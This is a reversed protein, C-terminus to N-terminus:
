VEAITRSNLFRRVREITRGRTHPARRTRAVQCMETTSASASLAQPGEARPVLNASHKLRHRGVREEDDDDEHEQESAAPEEIAATAALGIARTRAM